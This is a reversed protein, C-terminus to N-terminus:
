LSLPQHLLPPTQVIENKKKKPPPPTSKALFLLTVKKLSTNMGQHGSHVSFMHLNRHLM